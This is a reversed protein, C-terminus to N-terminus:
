CINSVVKRSHRPHQCSATSQLPRVSHSDTVECTDWDLHYGIILLRIIRASWSSTSLAIPRSSDSRPIHKGRSCMVLICNRDKLITKTANHMRPPSFNKMLRRAGSPNPRAQRWHQREDVDTGAFTTLKELCWLPPVILPPLLTRRAGVEGNRVDVGVEHGGPGM